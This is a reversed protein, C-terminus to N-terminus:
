TDTGDEGQDPGDQHTSNVLFSGAFCIGAMGLLWCVFSFAVAIVESYQHVNRAVLMAFVAGPLTVLKFYLNPKGGSTIAFVASTIVLGVAASAILRSKM